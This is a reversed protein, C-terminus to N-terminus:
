TWKCFETVIGPINLDQAIAWLLDIDGARTSDSSEVRDIIRNSGKVMNEGEEKGVYRVFETKVKGGERFSRYEELYTSNGVKRKRIAM